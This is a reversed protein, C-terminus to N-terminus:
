TGDQLFLLLIKQCLSLSVARSQLALAKWHGSAADPDDAYAFKLMPMNCHVMCHVAEEGVKLMTATLTIHRYTWVVGLNLFRHESFYNMLAKVVM